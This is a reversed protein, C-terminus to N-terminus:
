LKECRVKFLRAHSESQSGEASVEEGSEDNGHPWSYDRPCEIQVEQPM